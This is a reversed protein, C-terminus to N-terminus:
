KLMTSDCDDYPVTRIMATADFYEGAWTMGELTVLTDGCSIGTEYGRFHFVLDVDGDFDVDEEHRIIGHKNSHTEMAGAPGFMVTTHDVMMADFCDTTLIAVPIVGNMKKCNVPNTDSGPKVDIEVECPIIEDFRINSWFELYMCDSSDARAAPEGFYGTGTNVLEFSITNMGASFLSDGTIVLSWFKNMDATIKVLDVEEVLNGNVYIRAGDDAIIYMHMSVDRFFEPLEFNTYFTAFSDFPSYTTVPLAPSGPEGAVECSCEISDSGGGILAHTRTSSTDSVIYVLTDPGGCAGNGSMLFISDPIVNGNYGALIGSEEYSSPTTTQECGAALFAAISLIALVLLINGSRMKKSRM